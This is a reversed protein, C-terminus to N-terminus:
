LRCSASSCCASFSSSSKREGRIACASLPSTAVPDADQMNESVSASYRQRHILFPKGPLEPQGLTTGQGNGSIASEYESSRHHSRSKLDDSNAAEDKEEIKVSGQARMSARGTSGCEERRQANSAKDPDPRWQAPCVLRHLPAAREMRGENSKLAGTNVMCPRTM